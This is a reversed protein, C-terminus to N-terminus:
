MDDYIMDFHKMVHDPSMGSDYAQEHLINGLGFTEDKLDQFAVKLAESAVGLAEEFLDIFSATSSLRLTCPHYWLTHDLNLVDYTEDVHEPVIYGSLYWDQNVKKEFQQLLTMARESPLYLLKQVDYWDDLAKRIDYVKLDIRLAAKTAPVYVRAIAQLMKEDYTTIEYQPYHRVTTQHYRKLMMADMMSEFRHHMSASKGKCNGTRYFIYPHTTKDLAWHCLHGMFYVIMREKITEDQQSRIAQLAGEYFDNVQERHLVSGIKAIQHSKMVQWPKANHFFLFDPGNTGIYFLHEHRRIMRLIEQKHLDSSKELLAIVEEGFIKHTIINPM